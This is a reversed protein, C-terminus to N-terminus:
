RVQRNMRMMLATKKAKLDHKVVAPVAARQMAAESKRTMTVPFSMPENWYTSQVGDVIAIGAYSMAKYTIDYGSDVVHQGTMVGTSADQAEALAMIAGPFGCLVNEYTKGNYIIDGWGWLGFYLEEKTSSASASLYTIGTEPFGVKGDVYDVAFAIQTGLADTFDTSMHSGCEWGTVAYKFNNDYHHITIEFGYKGTADTLEWTGLWQNYAEEAAEEEITFPKVSYYGTSNGKTDFGIALAYYDGSEMRYSALTYSESIFIDSYKYGYAILEPVEQEIVYKVYDVVELKNSELLIASVTTFYYTLGEECKITFVEAETGQNDKRGDYSIAWMDTEELKAADKGTTFSISAAKGYLTGSMSIGFAIYTYDTEPELGTLNDTYSTKKKLGTLKSASMLEEYKESLAETVDEKTTVFGYWVDDATGDHKINIKASTAGVEAVELTFKINENLVEKEPEQEVPIKAEECSFASFALMMAFALRIITKM